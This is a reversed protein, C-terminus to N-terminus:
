ISTSGGNERSRKREVKDRKGENEGEAREEWRGKCSMRDGEVKRILREFM